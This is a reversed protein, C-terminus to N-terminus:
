FTQINVSTLNHMKKPKKLEEIQNDRIKIDNELKEVTKKLMSIELIWRNLNESTSGRVIAEQEM